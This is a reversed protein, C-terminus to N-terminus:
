KKICKEIEIKPITQTKLTFIMKVIWKIAYNYSLGIKETNYKLHSFSCESEEPM